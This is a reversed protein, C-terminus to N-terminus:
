VLIGTQTRSLRAVAPAPRPPVAVPAPAKTRALAHKAAAARVHDSLPQGLLVLGAVVLLVLEVVAIASAVVTATRWPRVLPEPAAPGPDVLSHRCEGPRPPAFEAETDAGAVKRCLDYLEVVTTQVGTGVNFIGGDHGVAALTARVVDGVFVYDRTQLGDGFIL